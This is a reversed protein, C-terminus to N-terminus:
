DSFTLGRNGERSPAAPGAVVQVALRGSGGLCGPLWVERPGPHAIHERRGHMTLGLGITAAPTNHPKGTTADEVSVIRGEADLAQNYTVAGEVRQTQAGFRRLRLHRDRRAAAGRRERIPAVSPGPSRESSVGAGAGFRPGGGAGATPAPTARAPRRTKGSVQAAGCATEGPPGPSRPGFPTRHPCRSPARGSRPAPPRRRETNGLPTDSFLLSRSPAPRVSAGVGV